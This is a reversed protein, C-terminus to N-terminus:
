LLFIFINSYLYIKFINWYTLKLSTYFELDNFFDIMKLINQLNMLWSMQIDRAPHVADDVDLLMTVMKNPL